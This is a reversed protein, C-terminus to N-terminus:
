ARAEGTDSPRLPVSAETNLATVRGSPLRGDPLDVVAVRRPAGPALHFGNDLPTGEDLAVAVHLAAATASLRVFPGDADCGAVAALGVDRREPLRRDPRHFAEAVVAGDEGLLTLVALDHAPPGFRYAYTTDVFGGLLATQDLSLASHAAVAVARSGGAIRTRGGQLLDLRLTGAVPTPRDNVLHLGLGALGEDRLLLRLPAYARRLAHWVSKPRGRADVVGWGAGAVLDRWFWVLQGANPGGPRRFEDITAEVVEAVVARAAALYREPDERRLRAPDVGYLRGLYHDRVDEFDWSAGLDRPVAQKWRPHHLAPVLLDAALTAPEPVNSFALCEAAFAVEALRADDLPREYAGVGYYHSVGHGPSFPLPGGFPTSPLYAVDPRRRAVLRPLHLDLFPSAAREPPLGLMAAQQHIESGGALVALSPSAQLRRLLHDAERGLADLFGPDSAPYDFNALMLDQFVLIGRADCLAHFADSEYVFPGAVRLMNVHAAALQDFAAALAAPSPNLGLPDVPTWVAGNAHVPVGNVRLRFGRGSVGADHDLRRFGLRPLPLVAAGVRIAADHLMAAGLGAPWWPAVGPLDLQGRWRDGDRVLAAARGACTLVVSENAPLDDNLKLDIGVIGRWGDGDAVLDTRLDRDLIAFDAGDEALMVPRWPGVVHWAPSWGPMHGILTTRVLRLRQDPIMGARWRGRPGRAAALAAELARCVIFLPEGEGAPALRVALPEFMTRATALRDGGRWIEAITALGDCRLTAAAHAPPDFRYWVDKDHLPAPSAPDWRGAAALAAAATGPVAAPIWGDVPLADPTAAAGAPTVLVRAATLALRRGGDPRMAM